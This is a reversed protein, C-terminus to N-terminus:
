ESLNWDGYYKLEGNENTVILDEHFRILLTCEDWDDWGTIEKAVNCAKQDAFTIRFHHLYTVDLRTVHRLVPGDFGWNDLHEGPLTRGHFITFRM